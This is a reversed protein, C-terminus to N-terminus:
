FQKFFGCVEPHDKFGALFEKRDITGNGDTDVRSFVADVIGQITQLSKEDLEEQPAKPNAAARKQKIILVFMGKVEEKSLVGDGNKDFLDFSANLKQELSGGHTVGMMSLYERVDMYGNHDFDFSDFVQEALDDHMVGGLILKFADRTIRGDRTAYKRFNKLVLEFKEKSIEYKTRYENLEKKSLKVNDAGM